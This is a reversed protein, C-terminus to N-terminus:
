QSIIGYVFHVGVLIGDQSPEISFQMKEKYKDSLFADNIAASILHGVSYGILVDSPFHKEAEVRSWGTLAAIGAFTM